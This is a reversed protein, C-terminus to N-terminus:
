CRRMIPPSGHFRPVLHKPRTQLPSVNQRQSGMQTPHSSTVQRLRLPPSQLWVQRRLLGPRPPRTLIV